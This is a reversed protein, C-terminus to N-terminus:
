SYDVIIWNNLAVGTSFNPIAASKISIDYNIDETYNEHMAFEDRLSSLAMHKVDVAESESKFEKWYKM